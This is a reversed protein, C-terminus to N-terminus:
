DRPGIRNLGWGLGDAWEWQLDEEKRRCAGRQDWRNTETSDPTVRDRGLGVRQNTSVVSASKM